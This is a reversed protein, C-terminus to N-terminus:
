RPQTESSNSPFSSASVPTGLLRAKSRLANPQGTPVRRWVEFGGFAAELRYCRRITDILLPLRLSLHTAPEDPSWVVVADTAAELSARFHEEKAPNVWRLWFIGSASPFPTLRGVPGNVPPFPFQRLVTAVRTEEGTHARVYDLMAVYDDWSYSGATPPARSILRTGLPPRAPPVGRALAVVAELSRDISCFQPVGQVIWVITGVAWFAKGAESIGPTAMVVGAVFGATVALLLAEPHFLYEHAIPSLPRYVVGGVLALVMTRSMRRFRAPGATALATLSVLVAFTRWAFPSESIREAFNALTLRNYTGGPRLHTLGNLFDDAVGAVLLPTFALVSCTAALLAWRALPVAGRRLPEESRRAGDEVGSILAPFFLVAYPRYALALAFALAAGLRSLRGPRAQLALLALAVFLPVSWDRQSVQSCDLGLYYYLVALYGTLGPLASKFLKRSWAVLAWGLALLCAVDWGQVAWTRGWGFLKGLLWMIYIPGPFNFDLLDRYPLIGAEWSLASLAFHDTDVWWPWTLYHPAWAALECVVVISAVAPLLGGTLRGSVEEVRRWFGATRTGLRGRGPQILLLAAAAFLLGFPAGARFWWPLLTRAFSLVLNLVSPLLALAAVAVVATISGSLILRWRARRSDGGSQAVM